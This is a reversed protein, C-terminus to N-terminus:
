RRTKPSRNPSCWARSTGARRCAASATRWAGRARRGAAFAAGDVSIAAARLRACGPLRKPSASAAAAPRAPLASWKAAGSPSASVGDFDAGALDDFKWRSRRTPAAPPRARGRRRRRPRRARRDDSRDAPRQPLAAVPATVIHRADRLVTVAQCIEISRRCSSALHVPVDRGADQLESIRRFLRKIEDGDLQATPEDLIIFRAGYSLARAIEVLQRAEVKLDGARADERSMSIGAPRAVDRAQAACRRWDILGRRTRSGTSSCTRARGDPRPHDDFASLRLGCARAVRRPRAIPPAAAGCFRIEGTDPKRLGTLMSVLTSKGAGNRGVLAHSEGPMVRIRADQLAVTSGYRKTVGIAEVIPTGDPTDDM